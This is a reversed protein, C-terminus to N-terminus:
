GLRAAADEDIWWVLEGATPAVGQAPYRLGAPDGLLINGVMAAKEKGATLFWVARAANLLPYTFTIRDASLKSVFNGVVLRRNEELAETEPFLSATHGDPGMGLLVLDIRPTGGKTAPIAARIAAEYEAAATTAGLETKVRHINAEPISARSFLAERAMLFNSEQHDSPVCREDGFFFQIKDWPCDMAALLEYVARPTSGGSLAISFTGHEAVADKARQAIAAAIAENLDTGCGAVRVTTTGVTFSRM